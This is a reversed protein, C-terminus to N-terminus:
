VGPTPVASAQPVVPPEEEEEPVAVAEAEEGPVAEEEGVGKGKERQDAIANALLQLKSAVAGQTITTDQALAWLAQTLQQVVGAEKANVGQIDPSTFFQKLALAVKAAPNDGEGGQGTASIPAVEGGVESVVSTIEEQIIQKLRTKTIRM